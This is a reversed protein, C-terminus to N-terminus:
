CIFGNANRIFFVCIGDICILSRYLQEYSGKPENCLDDSSCPVYAGAIFLQTQFNELFWANVEEILKEFVSKSRETNPLLLYCHGGGSYILNARSLRERELLLDIVHEVLIELYFSRARLMRLGNESSITYLFKQIGSVDMSALLFAPKRYYDKGNKWLCKSYDTEEESELQQLICSAIAATLKLHDFLSIDPLEKKSTSSPIYSFNGELVELLSNLYAENWEIGKLCDVLNNEIAQYESEGFTKKQEIPYNIESEMNLLFPSYYMTKQNGNLINFVPQLPTHLDFGSEEEPKERRDAAAAINDAMYVIYALADKELKAKGLADSHHYRVCELVSQRDLGAETKLFDYGSESHKRRDDGTRFVVKGVDHLLAGIVLELERDTM